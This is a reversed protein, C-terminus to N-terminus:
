LSEPTELHGVAAFLLRRLWRQARCGLAFLLCCVSNTGGCCVASAAAVAARSLRFVTSSCWAEGLVNLFLKVRLSLVIGCDVGFNCGGAVHVALQPVRFLHLCLPNTQVLAESDAAFKFREQAIGDHDTGSVILNDSSPAQSTVTTSM